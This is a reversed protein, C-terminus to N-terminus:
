PLDLLADGAEDFVAGASPDQGHIGLEVRSYVEPLVDVTFLGIRCPVPAFGFRNNGSHDSFAIHLDPHDVCTDISAPAGVITWRAHVVRVLSPPWCQGDRACVDSGCDFPCSTIPNGSPDTWGDPPPPFSEDPSREVCGVVLVVVAIRVVPDYRPIRGHSRAKRDVLSRLRAVARVHLQDSEGGIVHETTM